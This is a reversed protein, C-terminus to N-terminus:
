IFKPTIQIKFRIAIKYILHVTGPAATVAPSRREAELRARPRRQSRVPTSFAGAHSRKAEQDRKYGLRRRREEKRRRQKELRRRRQETSSQRRWLAKVDEAFCRRLEVQEKRAWGVL